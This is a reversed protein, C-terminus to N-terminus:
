PPPRMARVIGVVVFLAIVTIAFSLLVNLHLASALTFGVVGACVSAVFIPQPLGRVGPPYAHTRREDAADL